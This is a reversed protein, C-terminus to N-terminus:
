HDRPRNVAVCLTPHLPRIELTNYKRSQRICASQFTNCNMVRRPSTGIYEASVLSYDHRHRSGKCLWAMRSISYQRRLTFLGKNHQVFTNRSGEVDWHKSIGFVANKNTINGLFFILVFTLIDTNKCETSVKLDNYVATCPVLECRNCVPLQFM